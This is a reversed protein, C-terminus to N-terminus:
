RNWSCAATGACEVKGPGALRPLGPTRFPNCNPQGTAINVMTAQSCQAPNEYFTGREISIHSDSDRAHFLGGHIRSDAISVRGNYAAEIAQSWIESDRIDLSSGPALAALVALQLVSREVHVKANRGFIGIENITSNRVTLDANDGAYLQWAIPGLQVDKLTLHDSIKRNQLGAKLGDLTDRSGAVTYSIKLEGTPPASAGRGTITLASNPKVEIGIGPEARDVQLSWGVNLGTDAGVRWSFPGKVDPLTLTGKAGAADLWIGTRTATGSIRASSSDHVYIETPIHQTQAITLKAADHLNALLWSEESVLMSGTAEFSSRNRAEYTMSVSGRGPDRAQHTRFEVYELKIAANDSSTMSRHQNFDNDIALIARGDSRGQVWLTANDRVVINGAVVVKGGRRGTYDFHLSANGTVILDGGITCDKDMTLQGSVTMPRRPDCDAGNAPVATRVSDTAPRGGARNALLTDLAKKVNGPKWDTVSAPINALIADLIKEADGPKGGKLLRDVEQMSEQIPSVDAGSAHLKTAGAGVQAIKAQIRTALCDQAGIERGTTLHQPEAGCNVGESHGGPANSLLLVFALFGIFRSLRKSMKVIREM